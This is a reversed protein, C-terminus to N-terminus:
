NTIFLKRESSFDMEPYKDELRALYELQQTLFQRHSVSEPHLTRHQTAQVMKEIEQM